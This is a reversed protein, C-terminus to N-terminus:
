LFNLDSNCFSFSFYWPIGYSVATGQDLEKAIVDLLQEVFLIEELANKNLKLQM